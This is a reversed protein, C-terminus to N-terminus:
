KLFLVKKFENESMISNFGWWEAVKELVDADINQIEPSDRYFKEFLYASKQNRQHPYNFRGEFDGIVFHQKGLYLSYGLPTSVLNSATFDSLEILFKLHDMYFPNRKDGCCAHIAGIKSYPNMLYDSQSLDDMRHCIVITDVVGENKWRLLMDICLNNEYEAKKRKDLKANVGFGVFNPFFLVIRGLKKKIDDFVEKKVRNKAYHIYPGIAMSDLGIKKLYNVRQESFTLVIKDKYNYMNALAIGDVDDNLINGHEMTINKVFNRNSNETVFRMFVSDHGYMGVENDHKYCLNGYTFKSLFLQYSNYKLPPFFLAEKERKEWVVQSLVEYEKNNCFFYSIIKRITIYLGTNQVKHKIKIKM